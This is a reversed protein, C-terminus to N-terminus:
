LSVGTRAPNQEELLGIYYSNKELPTMERPECKCAPDGPQNCQEFHEPDFHNTIASLHGFAEVLPHTHPAKHTECSIVSELTVSDRIPRGHEDVNPATVWDVTGVVRIVDDTPHKRCARDPCGLYQPEGILKTSM